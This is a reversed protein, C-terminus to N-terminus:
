AASPQGQRYPRQADAATPDDALAAVEGIVVVAPNAVCREAAARAISDLTACTTRQRPTWGNEVVAVPMQACMGAARLGAVIDPLSGVGMLIVVTGGLQVLATLRRGADAGALLDHGNIVTVSDALGRSTVPIGAAAPVAYASSVGPVVEVTVGAARCAAVEEGGRGLVYPDGGKLRVVHRGAAAHEVLLANIREQPMPHSGPAKGADVLLARPALAALGDRPALRDVVVVDAEALLRRARVTMLDPDGPGGGVLSVRGRRGTM